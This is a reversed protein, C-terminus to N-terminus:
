ATGVLWARLTRRAMATSTVLVSCVVAMALLAGERVLASASQHRDASFLASLLLSVGYLAIAAHFGNLRVVIERRVIAVVLAALALAFLLEDFFIQRGHFSLHFPQFVPLMAIFGLFCWEAVRRALPKREASGYFPIAPRPASAPTM